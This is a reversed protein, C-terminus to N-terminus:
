AANAQITGRARRTPSVRTQLTWLRLVFFVSYAVGFCSFGRGLLELVAHSGAIIIYLHVLVSVTVFLTTIVRVEPDGCRPVM